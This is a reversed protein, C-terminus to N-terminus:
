KDHIQFVTHSSELSRKVCIGVIGQPIAPALHLPVERLDVGQSSFHPFLMFRDLRRCLLLRILECNRSWFTLSWVHFRSEMAQSQFKSRRLIQSGFPMGVRSVFTRLLSERANKSSHSHNREVKLPPCGTGANRRNRLGESFLM